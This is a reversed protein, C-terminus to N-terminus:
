NEMSDQTLIWSIADLLFELKYNLPKNLTFSFGSREFLRIDDYSNRSTVAILPINYNKEHTKIRQALEIGTIQPMEIDLFVADFSVQEMKTMVKTSDQIKIIFSNPFLKRLIRTLIEVNIWNDDVVLFRYEKECPRFTSIADM